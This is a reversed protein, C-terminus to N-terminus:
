DLVRPRHNLAGILLLYRLPVKIGGLTDPLKFEFPRLFDNIRLIGAPSCWFLCLCFALWIPVAGIVSALYPHAGIWNIADKRTTEWWKLELYGVARRVPAAQKRVEPDTHAKLADLAKRLAGLSGVADADQLSTAIVGLAKA